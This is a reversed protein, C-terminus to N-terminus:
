GREDIERNCFSCITEKKHKPVIFMNGCRKCRVVRKKVKKTEGRLGQYYARCLLGNWLIVIGGIGIFVLFALDVIDM